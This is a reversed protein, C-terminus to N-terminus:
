TGMHCFLDNTSVLFAILFYRVYKLGNENVFFLTSLGPSVEKNGYARIITQIPRTFNTLEKIPEVFM